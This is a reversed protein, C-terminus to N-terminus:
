PFEQTNLSMVFLQWLVRLLQVPEIRTFCLNIQIDVVEVKLCCCIAGLALAM